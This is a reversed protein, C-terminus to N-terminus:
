NFIPRTPHCFNTIFAYWNKERVGEAVVVSVKLCSGVRDM